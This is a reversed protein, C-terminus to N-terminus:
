SGKFLTNCCWIMTSFFIIIIIKGNIKFFLLRQDFLDIIFTTRFSCLRRLLTISLCSWGDIVHNSSKFLVHRLLLCIVNVNVINLCDLCIEIYLSSYLIILAIVFHLSAGVVSDLFCRDNEYFSGNYWLNLLSKLRIHQFIIM